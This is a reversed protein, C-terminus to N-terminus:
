WGPPFRNILNTTAVSFERSSGRVVSAGHWTAEGDHHAAPRTRLAVRPMTIGLVESRIPVAALALDSAAPPVPNYPVQHGPPTKAIGLAHADVCLRRSV